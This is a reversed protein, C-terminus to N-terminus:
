PQCWFYRPRVEEPVNVNSVFFQCSSDRYMPVMNWNCPKDSSSQNCTEGTANECINDNYPSVYVFYSGYGKCGQCQYVALPSCKMNAVAGRTVVDRDEFAWLAGILSVILVMSLSFIQYKM